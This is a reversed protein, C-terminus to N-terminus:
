GNELRLAKGVGWLLTIMYLCTVITVTNKERAHLVSKATYPM